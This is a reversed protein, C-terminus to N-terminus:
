GVVVDRARGLVRELEGAGVRGELWMRAKEVVLEWSGRLGVLKEEMFVVVLATVWEAEGFGSIDIGQKRAETESIRICTFLSPSWPWSGSFTQLSILHTLIESDTQPHTPSPSTTNTSSATSPPNHFPGSNNSSPNPPAAFPNETNNHSTPATNGFLGGTSANGFPRCASAGSASGFANTVSNSGTPIANGFLGGSAPAASTSASGFATTGSAETLPNSFLGGASASSASGFANTGSNTGTTAANGFPGGSAPASSTSAFGFANTGLNYGAPAANGFLGGTSAGSTSALRFANAGGSHGASAANGFLAGGTQTPYGFASAPSGVAGASGFLSGGTSPNAAVPHSSHSGQCGLTQATTAPGSTEGLTNGHSVANASARPPSTASYSPSAPSYAPSIPSMPSYGPSTPSYAPSTPAYTPTSPTYKPSPISCYRDAGSSSSPYAASSASVPNISTPPQEVEGFDLDGLGPGDDGVHLFSEFDFQHLADPDDPISFHLDLNPQSDINGFPTPANENSSSRTQEPASALISTSDMNQTKMSQPKKPVQQMLEIRAQPTEDKQVQDDEQRSMLFRRNKQQELLMLQMQYDQLAHNGQPAPSSQQPQQQQDDVNRVMRLRKGNQQELLLLQQSDSLIRDGQRTPSSPRQQEQEDEKRKMSAPRPDGALGPASNSTSSGFLGGAPAPEGFLDKIAPRASSRPPAYGSRNPDSFLGGSPSQAPGGFLSAPPTPAYSAQSLGGFLSAPRFSSQQPPPVHFLPRSHNTTYPQAAFLSKTVPQPPPSPLVEEDELWKWTEKTRDKQDKEVAVFSCWKGGVQFQVGLRVAERELMSSFRSEYQEKLSKGDENKVEPLWGRGQELEAIAKKAALQHITEGPTELIQIPFELELPGHTSTGRLVVSKPTAQPASPSLLLYVTTRNFAFLTPINQPAQIINPVHIKPLHAYRSEGTEDHVQPPEQDPDASANFLSITKKTQPTGQEDNLNLKVKLSDAVKEVIEYDYDDEDSGPTMAAAYKVALTYDDVHPSLAGKLMRVVKVDMKEGNGVSQSFGNGARAVGEILSHSVGQGVGLTFVRIPAKKKSIQENMYNFLVQQDWIAGDTLLMIELPIDKYRQEITSKLPELMETGGFDASFSSVHNVAEDLTAQSYAVSKPWLFSHNSGFSCINFMVGVPLSKLFVLLAQRALEINSGGMSGSRDCVFVVEPKEPPLAFKPVITTMLARQNPITPHTELIAKPVGTDKAVIQLIFDNDLQAFGRSLTASAKLMSPEDNQAVSTNGMLVSIPHSPSLIKQIFCGEQMEADVTIMISDSTAHHAQNDYFAQPMRGYRPAIVNPITFRIGDVEMDHKLEGLYTIKIVVTTGPPVNGVTTSFVDATDLQEFLGATKGRSVAEKFVKKAKEKEKVVGVITRDGVLCTFGVVSVGDYLPFTYKVEKIGKEKSPNLFKQTLTTRSTTSLITAHAELEVQPLYVKELRGQCLVGYHLGCVHQRWGHQQNVISGFM